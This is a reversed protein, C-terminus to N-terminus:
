RMVQTRVHEAAAVMDSHEWIRIVNWGAARLAEDTARDRRVNVELKDRWWEANVKPSTAHIPCSHWFCGDVFVAVKARTFAVDARRRVGRLVPYDVRFRLGLRHLQKRLATEPATDRRRQNQMRRQVTPSSASPRPAVM